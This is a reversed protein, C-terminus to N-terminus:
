PTYGFGKGVEARMYDRGLAEWDGDAPITISVARKMFSAPQQASPPATGQGLKRVSDLLM